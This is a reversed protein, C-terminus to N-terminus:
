TGGTEALNPEPVVIRQCMAVLGDLAAEIRETQQAQALHWPESAPQTFAPFGATGGAGKLWHALQGTRSTGSPGRRICPTWNRRWGDSLSKWSRASNRIM